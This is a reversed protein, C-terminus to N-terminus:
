KNIRSIILGLGGFGIEATKMIMMGTWTIPNGFTLDPRSFYLIYRHVLSTQKSLNKSETKNQYKAFRSAYYFKKKVTGLLSIHGEDHMIHSKVRDIKGKESMRQSLDWDEGSTLETDYGGIELYLEKQYFRAAEMWPVGQYYKKELAKCKAWFGVGFAEEPIVIGVTDTNSEMKEVAEQVVGATLTMDSDMILVYKGKANSVGLNRQASRHDGKEPYILVLDATKSALAVTDDTSNGDVVIIEINKYSQNRISRLCAEIFKTSNRVPIIVSVLSNNM